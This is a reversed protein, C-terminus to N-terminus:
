EDNMNRLNSQQILRHLEKIQNDMREMADTSAKFLKWYQYLVYFIALVSSVLFSHMSGM